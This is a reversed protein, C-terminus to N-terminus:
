VNGQGFPKENRSWQLLALFSIFRTLAENCFLSLFHTCVQPRKGSSDGSASSASISLTHWGVVTPVYEVSEGTLSTTSGAPDTITWLYTTSGMEVGDNNALSSSLTVSDHVSLIAARGPEIVSKWSYHGVDIDNYGTTKSSFSLGHKADIEKPSNSSFSASPATAKFTHDDDFAGFGTISYAHNKSNMLSSASSHSWYNLTNKTASSKLTATSSPSSLTSTKQSAHISSSRGAKRVDSAEHRGVTVLAVVGTVVATAALGYFLQKRLTRARRDVRSAGGIRLNADLSAATEAPPASCLATDQLLPDVEEAFPNM